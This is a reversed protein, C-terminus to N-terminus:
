FLGPVVFVRYELEMGVSSRMQFALRSKLKEDREIALLSLSVKPNVHLIFKLLM